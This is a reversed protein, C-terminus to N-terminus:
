ENTNIKNVKKKFVSGLIFITGFLLCMISWIQLDGYSGYNAIGILGGLLYFIGATIGGGRSSRTAIGIIGATLMLFALFLGASGSVEENGELANGIGAACSQLTIIFFLLISIIGIITKTTKM